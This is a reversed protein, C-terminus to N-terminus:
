SRALADALAETQAQTVGYKKPIKLHIERVEDLVFPSVFLAVEGAIAKNVCRAAPGAINILSPVFINCDYVVRPPPSATMLGTSRPTRRAARTQCRELEEALQDDSVGSELFRQYSEGTLEELSFPKRATQEVIQTVYESLEAGAAVARQELKERLESSLHLTLPTTPTASM